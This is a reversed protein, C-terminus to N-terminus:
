QVTRVVRFGIDDFDWSSPVLERSSRHAIRVELQTSYYGGGRVVRNEGPTANYLNIRPVNTYPVYWDSCWEWVNGSMDHIGLANPQKLGVPHTQMFAGRRWWAVNAATDSGSYKYTSHHQGGRAAYEWEAETPLRYGVVKAPDATVNGYMDLMQGEEPEGLLRYAVPLGEKESLWNCYTIADWWTVMIVPRTERGWNWDQTEGRATDDCFLDYEDFTVPYKGMWFDYTLTVQHVPICDDGLDGFEDGMSFTGSEVLVFNGLEPPCDVPESYGFALIGVVIVSLILIAKKVRTGGKPQESYLVKM